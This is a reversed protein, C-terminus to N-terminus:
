PRSGSAPRAPCGAPSAAQRKGAASGPSGSSSSAHHIPLGSRKRAIKCGGTKRRRFQLRKSAIDGSDEVNPRHFAQSKMGTRSEGANILRAADPPRSDCFEGSRSPNESFARYTATFPCSCAPTLSEAANRELSTGDSFRHCWFTWGRTNRQSASRTFLQRTQQSFCRDRAKDGQGAAQQSRPKRIRSAWKM